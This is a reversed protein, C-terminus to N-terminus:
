RSRDYECLLATCLASSSTMSFGVKAPNNSSLLMSLAATSFSIMGAFFDMRVALWRQSASVTEWGRLYVELSAMLNNRLSDQVRYARIVEIGSITESISTLIPSLGAAYLRKSATSGYMYVQGTMVGMGLFLIAPILFIPLVSSVAALRFIISLYNEIVQKILEPLANDLSFMDSSFRNMLQGAPTNTVFAFTSGLVSTLMKSHLTQGARVTGSFLLLTGATALSIWSLGIGLYTFVYFTNSAGPVDSKSSWITLWFSSAVDAGQAALIVACLSILTPAKGFLKMYKFMALRGIRDTRIVEANPTSKPAKGDEQHLAELDSPSPSVTVSEPEFITLSESSQLEHESVTIEPAKNLDDAKAQRTVSKIEGSDLEIIQDAMGRCKSNESVLIVTRGKLLPGDIINDVIFAATNTDLASLVDDLIVTKTSAYVARALAARARQGGSLSSGAEGVDSLDGAPLSKLDIDLATAQLVSDYRKACFPGSFIINERVTGRQLWPAQSAYSLSECPHDRLSAQGSSLPLESILGNILSSKGSRLVTLQLVLIPTKM